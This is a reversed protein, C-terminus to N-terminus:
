ELLKRTGHYIEYEGNLPDFRYAFVQDGEKLYVLYKGNTTHFFSSPNAVNFYFHGPRYAIKDEQYEPIFVEANRGSRNEAEKVKQAAQEYTYKPLHAYYYIGVLIFVVATVAMNILAKRTRSVKLLSYIPLACLGSIVCSTIHFNDPNLIWLYKSNPITFILRGLVVVLTSYLFIILLRVPQKEESMIEGQVNPLM